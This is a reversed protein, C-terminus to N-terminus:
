VHRHMGSRIPIQFHQNKPSPFYGSLFRESYPLSGVVFEVWMHSPHQSKFGPCMPSLRTSEGSCWGRPVPNTQGRM